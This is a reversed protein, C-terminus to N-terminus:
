GQADRRPRCRVDSAVLISEVRALTAEIVEDAEASSLGRKRLHRRVTARWAADPQVAELYRAHAVLDHDLRVLLERRADDRRTPGDTEPDRATALVARPQHWADFMAMSADRFEWARDEECALQAPGLTEQAALLHRVVLTDILDPACTPLADFPNNLDPDSGSWAEPWRAAMWCPLEGNVGLPASIVTAEDLAARLDLPESPPVTSTRDFHEIRASLLLAEARAQRHPHPSSTALILFAAWAHTAPHDVAVLAAIAARPHSRARALERRLADAAREDHGDATPARLADVKLADAADPDPSPATEVEVTPARQVRPASRRQTDAAELVRAAHGLVLGLVFLRRLSRQLRAQAPLLLM